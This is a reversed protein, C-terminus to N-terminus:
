QLLAQLDRQNWVRLRLAKPHCANCLHNRQPYSTILFPGYTAAPLDVCHAPDSLGETFTLGGGHRGHVKLSLTAKSTGDHRTLRSSGAHCPLTHLVHCRCNGMFRRAHGYRGSPRAASGTAGRINTHGCTAAVITLFARRESSTPVTRTSLYIAKQTRVPHAASYCKEPVHVNWLRAHVARPGVLAVMRPVHRSQSRRTWPARAECFRDLVSTRPCRTGSTRRM